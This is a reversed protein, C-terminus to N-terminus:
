TEIGNPAIGKSKFQDVSVVGSHVKIFIWDEPIEDARKEAYFVEYACKTFSNIPLRL